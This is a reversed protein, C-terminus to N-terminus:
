VPREGVRVELDTVVGGRLVRLMVPAGIADDRLRELLDEADTVAQGGFALLVDGVLMGAAAAPSGSTVAAVLLGRAGGEATAQHPPLSVPQGAIGLYGRRSSGRELASAAARWAIATPIVVHLGRIAVATAVGILGGAADLFAGGAFGQHMPATTRIIEDISRRRGTPLPGGIVSVLGASATVANSWSRALAVGLHGVRAPAGAPRMPAADLGAVKLVALGTAPDWGGLEADLVTGDHRRVHLDNESGVARMTTVVVGDAYVLGSAPRRRGAVQVVSPAAAAVIAAIENSLENLMLANDPRIRPARM